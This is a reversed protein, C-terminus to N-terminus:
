QILSFESFEFSLFANSNKNQKKKIKQKEHKHTHKLAHKKAICVIKKSLNPLVFMKSYIFRYCSVLLQEM